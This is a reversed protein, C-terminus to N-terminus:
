PQRRDLIDELMRLRTPPRSDPDGLLSSQQRAKSVLRKYENVEITGSSLLTLYRVDTEQGRRHIRDLSQLYHAAQNSLSEYVAVSAAHLTLGAGAAAPNGLFVSVDSENQFREVATRRQHGPTAGDIRVLGLRSYRQELAGLNARYFSWLVVKGGTSTLEEMISDLATWKGPTGEYGPVVAAPNSAIQLLVARRALFHTLRRAFEADSTARLDILLAKEAAEYARRQEAEMPIELDEFTRPPLQLVDDKRSRVWASTALRQAVQRAAIDRDDDVSLGDFTQGFDVLDFQAVLDRPHNPAPTGCLVFARTCHERLQRLAQTRRADPNKAFFSEDVTLITRRRAALTGLDIEHTVVGEYNVVIVDSGGRMVEVRRARPGALVEVKYLAGYFREFEAKWEYLMSKPSVVLMLDAQGREQLIDYAAMTTVTKGTGQEDFVCAGWSGPLTMVAAAVLQHSDLGETRTLVDRLEETAASAGGELLARARGTVAGYRESVDRRNQVAQRVNTDLRFMNGDLLDLVEGASRWSLRWGNGERKPRHGYARLLHGVVSFSTPDPDFRVGGGDSAVRVRTIM